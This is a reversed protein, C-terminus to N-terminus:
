IIISHYYSTNESFPDVFKDNWNILIHGQNNDDKLTLVAYYFMDREPAIRMMKDLVVFSTCLIKMSYHLM